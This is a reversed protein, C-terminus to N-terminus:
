KKPKEPSSEKGRVAVQAQRQLLETPLWDPVQNPGGRITTAIPDNQLAAFSADADKLTSEARTADGAAKFAMALLMRCQISMIKFNPIGMEDFRKATDELTKIAVLPQGRRLELWGRDMQLLPVLLSAVRDPTTPPASIGSEVFQEALKPDDLWSPMLLCARGISRQGRTNEPAAFRELVEKTVKRFGPEDRQHATLMILLSIGNVDYPTAKVLAEADALAKDWNKMELHIIARRQLLVGFSAADEPNRLKLLNDVDALREAPTSDRSIGGGSSTRSRNSTPATRPSANAPVRDPATAIPTAPSSAEARRPANPDVIRASIVIVCPAHNDEPKVLWETVVSSQGEPITLSTLLTSIVKSQAHIPGNEGKGLEIGRGKAELDSDQISVTTVIDRPETIRAQFEIVIGVQDVQIIPVAKGLGNTSASRIIPKNEGLNLSCRQNEHGTVSYKRINAVHGAAMWSSAKALVATASGTLEGADVVPKANTEPGESKKANLEVILVQFAIQRMPRDLQSLTQLVEDFVASSSARILLVNANPEAVVQVSADGEFQKGLLFALQSATAHKALYISRQTTGGEAREVAPANKAETVGKEPVGAEQAASSSSWGFYVVVACFLPSVFKRSMM